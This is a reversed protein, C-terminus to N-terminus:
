VRLASDPARQNVAPHMALLSLSALSTTSLLLPVVVAWWWACRLVDYVGTASVRNPVSMESWNLSQMSGGDSQMKCVCGMEASLWECVVLVLV